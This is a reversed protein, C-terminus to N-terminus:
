GDRHDKNDLITLYVMCAIPVILMLTTGWWDATM